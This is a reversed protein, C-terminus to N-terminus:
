IAEDAAPPSAIVLSPNKLVGRLKPVLVFFYKVICFGLPRRMQEEGVNNVFKEHAQSIRKRGFNDSTVESLVFDNM